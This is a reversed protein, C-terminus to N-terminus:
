TRSSTNEAASGKKVSNYTELEWMSLSSEGAIVKAAIVLKCYDDETDIMTWTPGNYSPLKTIIQYDFPCHPPEAIKGICWLYKLYLNLAKQAPGIRFRGGQLIGSHVTSLHNSLEIINKIHNDESIKKDYGQAIQELWKRLTSQFVKRMKEPTKQKYVGARQVTGMLTLSFFEDMLFQEQYAYM